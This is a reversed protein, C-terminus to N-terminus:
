WVFAVGSCLSLRIFLFKVSVVNETNTIWDLRWRMYKIIGVTMRRTFSTFHQWDSNSQLVFSFKIGFKLRCKRGSSKVLSRYMWRPNMNDAKVQHIQLIINEYCTVIRNKCHYKSLTSGTLIQDSACFSVWWMICWDKTKCTSFFFKQNTFVNM